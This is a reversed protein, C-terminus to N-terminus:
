GRYAVVTGDVTAVAEALLEATGIDLGCHYYVNGPGREEGGDAWTPENSMQTNSAFWRQKVPYILRGPPMLPSGKPWLRLRVDKADELGWFDHRADEYYDSTITCDIQVESVTTPLNYNGCGLTVRQGDVEVTATASRVPHRPGRDRIASTEILRVQVGRGNTLTFERSEGEALDGWVFLPGTATNTLNAAQQAAGDTANMVSAMTLAATLIVLSPPKM